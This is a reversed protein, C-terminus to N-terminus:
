VHDAKGHQLHELIYEKNPIDTAELITVFEEKDEATLGIIDLETPFTLVNTTWPLHMRKTFKQLDELGFWNNKHITTHVSIDFDLDYM